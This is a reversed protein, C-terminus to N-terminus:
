SSGVLAPSGRSPRGVTTRDGCLAPWVGSTMRSPRSRATSFTSCKRFPSGRSTTTAGTFYGDSPRHGSPLIQAAEDVRIGGRMRGLDHAHGLGDGELVVDHGHHEFVLAPAAVRDQEELGHRARVDGDYAVDHGAAAGEGEGEADGLRGQGGLIGTSEFVGDLRHHQGIRGEPATHQAAGLQVEPAQGNGGVKGAVGPAVERGAHEHCAIRVGAHFGLAVVPELEFAGITQADTKVRPAPHELVLAARLCSALRQGAGDREAEMWEHGHPREGIRGRVDALELHDTAEEPLGQLDRRARGDVEVDGGGGFDDDLPLDQGARAFRLPREALEGAVERAAAGLM